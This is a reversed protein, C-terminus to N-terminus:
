QLSNLIIGSNCRVYHVAPVYNKHWAASEIVRAEYEIQSTEVKGFIKRSAPPAWPCNPTDKAM